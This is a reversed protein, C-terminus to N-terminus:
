VDWNKEKRLGIQVTIQFFENLRSEAEGGGGGGVGRLEARRYGFKTHAFVIIHCTRTCFKM